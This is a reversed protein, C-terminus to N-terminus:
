NSTLKMLVELATEVHQKVALQSNFIHRIKGQKDVIYTTRGPILGMFSSPVGFMKRVKNGPDSLLIYPLQYKEAFNRHSDESDHSIGIVVADYELFLEYDDRFSCAEATCGLSEDKPYFFIVLNKRGLIQQLRFTKGNQDSLEFEPVSSGIELKKM